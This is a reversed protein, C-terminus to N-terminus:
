VMRGKTKGRVACGDARKSASSIMGGAAKKVPATDPEENFDGKKGGKSTGMTKDVMKGYKDAPMEYRKKRAEASQDAFDTKGGEAYKSVKGGKKMPKTNAVLAQEKMAEEEAAAAERERQERRLKADTIQEPLMGLLGQSSMKGFLGKGTAIGAVPSIDGIKIGM